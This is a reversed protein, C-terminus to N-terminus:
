KGGTKNMQYWTSAVQGSGALLSVAAASTPSVTRAVPIPRATSASYRMNAATDRHANAENVYSAGQVRYGWAARRANDRVTQQDVAASWDTTTLVDNASGETIDIGRAAMTARQTGKVAATDLQMGQIDLDGRRVADIAQWESIQRNNDAIKANVDEVQADYLLTRRQDDQQLQQEQQLLQANYNQQQAASSAGAASAGLGAAMFYMPNCM